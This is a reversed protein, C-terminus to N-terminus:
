EKQVLDVLIRNITQVGRLNRKIIQMKKGDVIVYKAKDVADLNATTYKIQVRCDGEFYQGGTAWNMQEMPGWTVHGSISVGSYVPLWYEGSCITCFSNTSTGTIPDLACLPNSCPLSSAVVFWNTERGIANRIADVVEEDQDTPFTFIM